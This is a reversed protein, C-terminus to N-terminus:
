RAEQDRSAPAQAHQGQKALLNRDDTLNRGTKLTYIFNVIFALVALGVLKLLLFAPISFGFLEINM